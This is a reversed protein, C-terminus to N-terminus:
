PPDTNVYWVALPKRIESVERRSGKGGRRQLVSEWLQHKLIHWLRAKCAKNAKSVLSKKLVWLKSTFTNRAM